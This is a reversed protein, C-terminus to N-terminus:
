GTAVYQHVAEQLDHVAIPKPLFGDAGARRAQEEESMSMAASCLLVPLNALNPLCRVQRVFEVGDMGDMQMDVFIIAPKEKVALLLGHQPSTSVIAHFGLLDSVKSMLQLSLVDDDIFLLRKMVAQTDM